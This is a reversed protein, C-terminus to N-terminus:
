SETLPPLPIDQPNRKLTFKQTMMRRFDTKEFAAVMGGWKIDM